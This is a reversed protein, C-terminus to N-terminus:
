SRVRLKLIKKRSIFGGLLSLGTAVLAFDGPEPVAAPSTAAQGSITQNPQFQGATVSFSGGFPIRGDTFFFTVTFTPDDLTISCRRFALGGNCQNGQPGFKPGNQTNLYFEQTFPAILTLSTFDVAPNSVNRYTTPGFAGSANTMFTFNPSNLDPDTGVTDLSISAASILGANLALLACASFFIRTRTM